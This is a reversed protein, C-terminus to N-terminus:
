HYDVILTKEIRKSDTQSNRKDMLATGPSFAEDLISERKRPFSSNNAYGGRASARGPALPEAGGGTM